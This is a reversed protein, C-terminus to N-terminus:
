IPSTSNGPKWVPTIWSSELWYLTPDVYWHVQYSSHQTTNMVGQARAVDGEPARFGPDLQIGGLSVFCYPTRTVDVRRAPEWFGTKVGIVPPSSCTCLLGSPDATDEQGSDMVVNGGLTMPFLCSWCIDTIPNAFKGVCQGAVSSQASLLLVALWLLSALRTM